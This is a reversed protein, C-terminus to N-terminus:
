QRFGDSILRRELTFTAAETRETQSRAEARERIRVIALESSGDAAEVHEVELNQGIVIGFGNRGQRRVCRHSVNGAEDTEAEVLFWSGPLPRSNLITELETIYAAENGIRRAVSFAKSASALRAAPICGAFEAIALVSSESLM